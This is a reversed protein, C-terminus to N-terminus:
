ALLVWQHFSLLECCRREPEEGADPERKRGFCRSTEVHIIGPLCSSVLIGNALFNVGAVSNFALHHNSKTFGSEKCVLVGLDVVHRDMVLQSHRM